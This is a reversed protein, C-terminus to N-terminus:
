RTQQKLCPMCFVPRVGDPRFPVKTEQNCQSCTTTHLEAAPARRDAGRGETTADAGGEPQPRSNGGTGRGGRSQFKRRRGRRCEVCRKPDHDFGRDRFFQQEAESFVFDNQCDCCVLTRDPV